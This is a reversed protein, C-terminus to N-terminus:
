DFIHYTFKWVNRFKWVGLFVRETIYSSSRALRGIDIGIDVINYGLKVKNYLWILNSGKGCIEAIIKGGKGLDSLKDYAKFGDYLNDAANVFKAVTQVRTMTEGIVTVKSFDHLDDGVNALKVVKGGSTLFPIAAFLVDIGLAAWNEWNKYGENSCLDYIDWGIFIIDFFTDWGKGTIDCRNVPNNGCYAYMNFGVFNDNANIYGDANIFRKILPDYYRSQLYYFGTENDQYYSRYRIPNVYGINDHTYENTYLVCGWADYTYEAVINGSADTIAVVDGQLNKVYYFQTSGTTGNYSFSQVFSYPLGSEDYLFDLIEIYSSSYTIVERVLLGDSYYYDHVTGDVTKQIRLGDAGYKYTVTSHGFDASALESGNQWSFNYFEYGNYYERPNGISDYIFEVGDYSTLQDKWQSNEYEYIYVKGYSIEKDASYEEFGLINGYADYVYDLAFDDEYFIETILQGQEDYEYEYLLVGNNSVTKINGLNDYTYSFNKVNTNGVKVTMGSIQQTMYNGDNYSYMQKLNIGTPTITKNTLREVDDYTYNITDNNVTMSNLLNDTSDYNYAYNQSFSIGSTNMKCSYESVRGKADYTYYTYATDYGDTQWTSVLRNLSDYNYCVNIDNDVDEVSYLKGNGNYSYRYKEVGGIKIATIRDLEDYVNTLTVGNGYTTTLLNGNYSDYTYTVLTTTGVKVSTTNGFGDYTFSYTQWDGRTIKSLAGKLYEYNVSVLSSIAASVQRDNYQNYTYTTSVGNANTISSLLGKDNYGYTTTIRNIDTQSYLKNGNDTYTNQALLSIPNGGTIYMGTVNGYADYEFNMYTNPAEVGILRHVYTSDYTYKYTTNGQSEEILNNNSDYESQISTTYTKDSTELNGKSDYSYTQAADEVLAIDYIYAGGYLNHILVEVEITKITLNTKQPIIVGQVFQCQSRMETNFPVIVSENSQDSYYITAKVAVTRIDNEELRGTSTSIYGWASIVFTTNGSKNIPVIKRAQIKSTDGSETIYLPIAYIEEPINPITSISTNAPLAWTYIDGLFNYSSLSGSYELQMDDAYINASTGKVCLCIIYTKYMEAEFTVSIRQWKDDLSSTMNSNISNGTAILNSEAISGKYVKFYVGGNFSAVESVDVYASATYKGSYGQTSYTQYAYNETNTSYFVLSKIGSRHKTSVTNVNYNFYWDAIGNEFSSNSFLNQALVGVVSQSSIHNNQKTVGSEVYGSTNAGYVKGSDDHSYVTVSRGKYDFVYTTSIDDLRFSPKYETYTAFVGITNELYIGKGYNKTTGNLYYEQIHRVRKWVYESQMSDYGMTYTVAYQAENDKASTLRYNDSSDYTYEVTTSDPFTIKILCNNSDYSFTTIRGYADTISHLLSGNYALSALTEEVANSSSENNKRTIRKLQSNEYVMNIANGNEDRIKTLIGSSFIKQNGQKDELTYTTGSVTLTLGLGDEDIYTGNESKFYHETGDSDNYVYYTEGSLIKQVITEQVNLKWGRGFSMNSFAVTNIDTGTSTFYSASYADNYIHALSFPTIESAATLDNRVLTLDSTYDNIYGTGARGISQNHYTYYGELGVTNRYKVTFVPEYGSRNATAFTVTSTVGSTGTNPIMRFMIGNNTDGYYWNKVVRTIDWTSWDNTTSSSVQQYDIMTSSASPKTNWTISDTWSSNVEYVGVKIPSSSNLFTQYLSITANTIVSNEPVSPLNINELKWYYYCANTNEFGVLSAVMNKYNTTPISQRVYTDIAVSKGAEVSPDITIPFARGDANIWEADATVTIRYEKNKIQELTYTVAKSHEGNADFMYPMAIIYVIKGSKDDKLAITGDAQTEAVLKNLKMDFQYIYAETKEKVIINEKVDNGSVVYELDVGALIDAYKVSSIMKNLVTIKELETAEEAHETPNTVTAAKSKNAGVLNFSIKYNDQKIAVLKSSNSNNAFKVTHKGKSTAVGVVDDSDVAASESLTNDIDQWDGNEDQYHVANNYMAVYYSGDSMRIYKANETRKSVDEGLAYVEKSGEEINEGNEADNELTSEASNDSILDAVAAYVSNPVFTVFMVLALLVSLMKTRLRIM